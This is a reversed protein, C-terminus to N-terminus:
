AGVRPVGQGRHEATCERGQEGIRERVVVIVVAAAARGTGPLSPPLLLELVM